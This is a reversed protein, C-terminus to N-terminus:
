VLLARVDDRWTVDRPALGEANTAKADAGAKLLLEVFERKHCKAALHLATDGNHKKARVDAGAKLLIELGATNFSDSEAAVHLPTEGEDDKVNVNAGAELLKVFVTQADQRRAARHLASVGNKTKANV